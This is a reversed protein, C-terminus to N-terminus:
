RAYGFTLCGLFIWRDSTSFSREPYLSYLLRSNSHSKIVMHRSKGGVETEFHVMNRINQRINNAFDFHLHVDNNPPEQRAGINCFHVIFLLRM